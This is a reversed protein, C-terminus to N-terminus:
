RRRDPLRRPRKPLYQLGRKPRPRARLWHPASSCIFWWLPDRPFRDRLLHRSPLRSMPRKDKQEGVIEGIPPIFGSRPDAKGAGRGIIMATQVICPAEFSALLNSSKRLDCLLSSIRKAAGMRCMMQWSGRSEPSARRPFRDRGLCFRPPQTDGPPAASPVKKGGRPTAADRRDKCPERFAAGGM